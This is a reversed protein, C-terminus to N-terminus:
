TNHDAEQELAEIRSLIDAQTIYDSVFSLIRSSAAYRISENKSELLSELENAAKEACYVLRTSVTELRQKRYEGLQKKFNPDKMRNSVTQKTVGLVKAAETQSRCSFLACLLDEDSIMKGM